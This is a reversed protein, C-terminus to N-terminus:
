VARAYEGFERTAALAYAEAAEEKTGFQGLHKTVGNSRIQARWRKSRRAQFVGKIGSTNTRLKHRNANNQTADAPRLNEIANNQKNMDAHDIMSPVSGHVIFWAIRHAHLSRHCIEIKRYGGGSIYGAIAGQRARPAHSDKWTLAGTIPDYDLRRNAEKLADIENM